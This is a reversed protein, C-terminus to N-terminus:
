TVKSCHLVWDILKARMVNKIQPHLENISPLCQVREYKSYEFLLFDQYDLVYHLQDVSLLKYNQREETTCTSEHENKVGSIM